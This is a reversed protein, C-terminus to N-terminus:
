RRAFVIDYLTVRYKASLYDLAVAVRQIRVYLRVGLIYSQVMMLTIVACTIRM